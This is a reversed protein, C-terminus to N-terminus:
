RTANRIRFKRIKKTKKKKQKKKSWFEYRNSTSKDRLKNAISAYWMSKNAALKTAELWHRLIKNVFKDIIGGM